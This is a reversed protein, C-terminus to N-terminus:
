NFLLIITGVLSINNPLLRIVLNMCCILKRYRRRFLIGARPIVLLEKTSNSSILLHVDVGRGESSEMKGEVLYFTQFNCMKRRSCVHGRQKYAGFLIEMSVILVGM